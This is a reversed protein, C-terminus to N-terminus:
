WKFSEFVIGIEAWDATFGQKTKLGLHLGFWDFLKYQLAARTWLDDKNKDGDPGIYGGFDLKLLMKGFTYNYGLHYGYLYRDKTDEYVNILSGDYFMDLGADLGHKVNFNLQYELYGSFTYFRNTTVNANGPENEGNQVTGFSTLMNIRQRISKPTPESKIKKFRSQLLEDTYFDNNINKQEKNYHYKFGLNLGFMNLGYNPVTVRGNSFHTYDLGYIIDVNRTLITEFGLGVNVYISFPGGIADNKQTKQKM